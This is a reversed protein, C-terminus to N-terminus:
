SKEVSFIARGLFAMMNRALLSAGLGGDEFGAGGQGLIESGGLVDAGVEVGEM